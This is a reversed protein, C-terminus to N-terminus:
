NNKISAAKKARYRRTKEKNCAKCTRRNDYTYTNEPTFKHGNKCHTRGDRRIAGRDKYANILDDIRKQRRVGMYPYISEMVDVAPWGYIRTYFTEQREETQPPAKTATTGLLAAVRCVIDEDVMQLKIAPYDRGKQPQAYFCGEGELLGALWIIEEKTM